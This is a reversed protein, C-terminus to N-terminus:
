LECVEIEAADRRAKATATGLDGLRAFTLCEPEIGLVAADDPALRSILQRSALIRGGTASAEIRETMNVDDGLATVESRAMTSIQGIFVDDGWHLGFRVVLAEPPLESREAVGALSDRFSRAAVISARVAASESGSTEAPFFAVVGDGLHRGVIGGADIVCQDSARVLRRGLTFYAHTSLTRALVSSKELDAFLIAMPYQGARTFRDMRQLHDLDRLWAMAGLANMPATPKGVLVTGRLRGDRDRVRSATMVSAVIGRSASGGTDLRPLGSALIEFGLAAGDHEVLEDVIDRLSPDVLSRVADRGGVTDALVLGGLTRFAERWLETTNLGFRWGSGVRVSEASFVHQGIAVSGLRGGSRDAWMSRAGDTVYVFRWDADVIWAAQGTEEMATAVDALEPDSPLLCPEDAGVSM